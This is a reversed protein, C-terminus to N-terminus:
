AVVSFINAHEGCTLRCSEYGRASKTTRASMRSWSLFVALSQLWWIALLRIHPVEEPWMNLSELELKIREDLSMGAHQALFVFWWCFLLVSSPLSSRVPLSVKRGLQRTQLPKGREALYPADM